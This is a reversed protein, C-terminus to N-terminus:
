GILGLIAARTPMPWRSNKATNCWRCAPRLNCIAHAGGVNLPKVHDWTTATEGCVWCCGNWYLWKANLQEPTFPIAAVGKKLARRIANKHKEDAARAPTKRYDRHWARLKERNSARYAADTERKRDPNQAIWEATQNRLKESHKKYYRQKYVRRKERNEPKARYAADNALKKGHNTARWEAAAALITERNDAYREAADRRRCIMCTNLRGDPMAKNRHFRKLLKFRKCRNCQKKKTAAAEM